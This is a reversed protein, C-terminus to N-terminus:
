QKEKRRIKDELDKPKHPDDDSGNRDKEVVRTKNKLDYKVGSCKIPQFDILDVDKIYFYECLYGNIFVYSRNKKLKYETPIFIVEKNNYTKIANFSNDLRVSLLKNLKNEVTMNKDVTFFFQGFCLSPIFLVLLLFIRKM